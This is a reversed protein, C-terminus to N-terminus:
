RNPRMLFRHDVATFHLAVGRLNHWQKRAEMFRKNAEDVGKAHERISSDERGFKAQMEDALALMSATTMRPETAFHYDLYGIWKIARGHRDLGEGKTLDALAESADAETSEGFKGTELVWSQQLVRAATEPHIGALFNAVIMNTDETM